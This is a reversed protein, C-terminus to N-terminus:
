DAFHMHLYVDDEVDPQLVRQGTAEIRELHNDVLHLMVAVDHVGMSWLANEVSRATGLNLREHHLSKIQGIIGAALYKKLWQVAPQFLVLHGVMLIRGRERALAVLEAAEAASLAMPKEVLVDKGALLAERAISV